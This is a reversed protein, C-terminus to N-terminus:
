HPYIHPLVYILLETVRLLVFDDKTGELSPEGNGDRARWCGALYQARPKKRYQVYCHGTLKKARM